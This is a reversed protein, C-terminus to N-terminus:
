HRNKYHIYTQTELKDSGMRRFGFPTLITDIAHEIKHYRDIGFDEIPSRIIVCLDDDLLVEDCGDLEKIAEVFVDVTM